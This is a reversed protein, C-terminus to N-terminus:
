NPLVSSQGPLMSKKQELSLRDYGEFLKALSESLREIEGRQPEHINRDLSIGELLQQSLGTIVVDLNKVLSLRDYNNEMVFTLPAEIQRLLKEILEM